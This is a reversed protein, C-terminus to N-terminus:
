QDICESNSAWIYEWDSDNRELVHFMGKRQYRNQSTIIKHGKKYNATSFLRRFVNQIRTRLNHHLDKSLLSSVPKGHATTTRVGSVDATINHYSTCERYDCLDDSPSNKPYRMERPSYDVWPTAPMVFSDSVKMSSNVRVEDEIRESMSSETYAYSRSSLMVLLAGFWAGFFIM